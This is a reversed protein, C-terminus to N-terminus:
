LLIGRMNNSHATNSTLTNSSSSQLFIGTDHNSNATNNTLTNNSSSDLYIGCGNNTVNNDSINCHQSGYLYIGAKYNGTANEVTFGSINVYDATVDFVHDGSNSANVTCNASGNQSRITLHAVNVNVNENYTGDRVIIVDGATANNM